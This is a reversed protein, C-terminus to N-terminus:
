MSPHLRNYQRYLDPNFAALSETVQYLKRADEYFQNSFLVSPPALLQPRNKGAKKISRYWIAVSRKGPRKSTQGHCDIAIFGM